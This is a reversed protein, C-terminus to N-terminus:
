GIELRPRTKWKGRTFDPIDVAMSRNGVSHESLPAVVSWAAADYVDFDPARGARLAQILRYDELFDGNRIETQPNYEWVAGETISAYETEQWDGLSEEEVKKWLPHQYRERYKSGPEWKHHHSDGEVCVEFVPFRRVIGRTGQVM